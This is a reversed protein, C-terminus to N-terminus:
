SRQPLASVRYQGADRHPGSFCAHMKGAVEQQECTESPNVLPMDSEAAFNPVRNHLTSVRHTALNQCALNEFDALNVYLEGDDNDFAPHTNRFPISPFQTM